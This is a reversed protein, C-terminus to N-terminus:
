PDDAGSLAALATHLPEEAETADALEGAAPSALIARALLFPGRIEEDATVAVPAFGEAAALEAAALLLRTKGVGPEGELTLAALHGAKASALEQRVATLEVRRGVIAGTARRVHLALPSLPALPVDRALATPTETM